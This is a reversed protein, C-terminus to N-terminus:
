EGIFDLNGPNILSVTADTNLISVRLWLDSPIGIRTFKVACENRGAPLSPSQSYSNDSYGILGLGAIATNANDIPWTLNSVPTNITGGNFTYSPTDFDLSFSWPGSDIENDNTTGSNYSPYNTHTALTAFKRFVKSYGISKLRPVTIAVKIVYRVINSNALDEELQESIIRCLVNSKDLRIRTKSNAKNAMGVSDNMGPYLKAIDSNIPITVNADASDRFGYELLVASNILPKTNPTTEKFYSATITPNVVLRFVYTDVPDPVFNSSSSFLTNADVNLLHTGTQNTSSAISRVENPRFGWPFFISSAVRNNNPGSSATFGTTSSSPLISATTDFHKITTSTLDWVAWDIDAENFRANHNGAATSWNQVWSSWYADAKYYYGMPKISTNRQAWVTSDTMTAAGYFASFGQFRVTNRLSDTNDIYTQALDKNALALAATNYYIINGPIKFCYSAINETPQELRKFFHDIFNDYNVRILRGKCLRTNHDQTQINSASSPTTPTGPRAAAFAMDRLAMLYMDRNSSGNNHDGIDGISSLASALTFASSTVVPIHFCSTICEPGSLYFNSIGYGHIKSKFDLVTSHNPDQTRFSWWPSVKYRSSGEQIGHYWVDGHGNENYLEKPHDWFCTVPSYLAAFAGVETRQTGNGYALDWELKAKVPNKLNQVAANLQTNVNTFYAQPDQENPITKKLIHYVSSANTMVQESGTWNFSSLYNPLQVTNDAYSTMM